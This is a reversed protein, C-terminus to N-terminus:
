NRGDPPGSRDPSRSYPSPPREAAADPEDKEKRVPEPARRHFRPPMDPLPDIRPTFTPSLRATPGAGQAGPHQHNWALSASRPERAPAYDQVRPDPRRLQGQPRNSNPAPAAPQPRNGNGTLPAPQPRYGNGTLPAPQQDSMVESVTGAPRRHRGHRIAARVVTPTILLAEVFRCALLMLSLGVLGHSLAGVTAVGLEAVSFTTLVAAARTIRGSARCVAIYLAKPVGLPYALTLLELPVTGESAYGRGFMSLLFHAGAGLVIMGPLGIMFSLRLAVRLKRAIVRPDNAVVAFLVEALSIPVAFLFSTLMSAIYFAGNASPSVLLTVLVPLVTFPVAQSINLWNHAMATWGLERLISWHPRALIHTGKFRLWVAMVVLSLAMGAAWAATIGFGFADHLFIAAVPLILLKAVAFAVNRTLQLGGRLLGITAQDFVMTVGTLVSGAM